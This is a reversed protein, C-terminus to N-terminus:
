RSEEFRARFYRSGQMGPPQFRPHSPIAFPGARHLISWHSLNESEEIVLRRGAPLDIGLAPTEHAPEWSLRPMSSPLDARTGALFEFLDSAGDADSDRTQDSIGGPLGAEWSDPIGDADADAPPGPYGIRQRSVIFEDFWAAEDKRAQWIDSSSGGFFTSFFMWTITADSTNTDRFFFGPYSAAKTGDLWGELLGDHEGPTNLRLHLEIHHWRGPVFRAQFGETNWWFRDGPDYTNDAPVHVYFEAKGDERWMLRGSWEHTRDDFSVAGGLGPLKGGLVFDFDEAFRVWYSMYLDSHPGALDAFWQAGSNASQQGGQPYLIRISKGKGCAIESDIALRGEDPGNAWSTGPWQPIWEDDSKVGDSIGDFDRRLLVDPDHPHGFDPLLDGPDTPHLRALAGTFGANYDLAVESQRYNSRDDEFSDNADPGGVLAGHLVHTNLDPNGIDHTESAHAARHHPRRPPNNGVGCVFSRGAPNAGLMYDIQSRGFTSYRQGPDEVRDAYVLACFAANAAYRLPGWSDLHALGGPTRTVQQGESGITWFDLWRRASERYSTSGDLMAMLVHCAYSKDDWSLGWTFPHRGATDTPLDEYRERAEDLWTPDGTARHLWIAAWALEDADGSWSRYFDAASPVSDSYRGRHTTAFQYLSSAREVLRASTIPDEPALVISSAAMAAAVEAALDSGPATADIFYSPRDMTMHEPPGWWAHDLAADGVQACLAVTGGDSDRLHARELWDAGWRLISRLDDLQGTDAFGQPYEVAGWALMTMSFAMPFTFKVHDGADHFGGSLDIGADAGDGLASDGRWPVRFSDPLDGSRQADYFWLSKQLAVAYTAPSGSNEEEPPPSGDDTILEVTASGPIGRGDDPDVIFGFDASQGAALSGNYSLNSFTVRRGSGQEVDSRIACKWFSRVPGGLDMTVTWGTANDPGHNTVDVRAKYSDGYDAELTVAATQGAAFPTAGFLAIGCIATAALRPVDM